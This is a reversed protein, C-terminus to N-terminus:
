HMGNDKVETITCHAALQKTRSEIGARATDCTCKNSLQKLGRCRMATKAEQRNINNPM